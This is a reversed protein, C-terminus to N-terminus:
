GETLYKDGRVSPTKIVATVVDTEAEFINSEGPEIVIIDGAVYRHGNMKCKGSVVVTVEIAEKHYHESEVSGAPYKQVAAEFGSTKIVSPEFDGIFWGRVMEELKYSAHRKM